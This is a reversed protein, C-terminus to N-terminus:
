PNHITSKELVNTQHEQALQFHQGPFKFFSCLVDMSGFEEREIRAILSLEPM